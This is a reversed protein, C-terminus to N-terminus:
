SSELEKRLDGPQDDLLQLTGDQSWVAQFSIKFEAMKWDLLKLLRAQEPTLTDGERCVTYEETLYVVGKKLSTPLGLSRLHPEMSHPFKELPGEQIVVDDTALFGARAHDQESYSQFWSIVDGRPQNTFFLGVNGRLLKALSSLGERYEEAESRGLATALVRNRGYFWRSSRWQTRVEKLKSNRMNEVSYVFVHSYKDVCDRIEQLLRSKAERGKKRTQSLSYIRNRKSKPMKPHTAV